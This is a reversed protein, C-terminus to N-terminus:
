KVCILNSTLFIWSFDSPFVRPIMKRAQFSPTLSFFAWFWPPIEGLDKWSFHMLTASCWFFSPIINRYGCIQIWTESIFWFTFSFPIPFGSFLPLLMRTEIILFHDLIRYMYFQCLGPWREMDTWGRWVILFGWSCYMIVWSWKKIRVYM